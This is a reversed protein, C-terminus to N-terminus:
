IQKEAGSLDSSDSPVVSSESPETSSESPAFDEEIREPRFVEMEDFSLFEVGIGAEPMTLSKPLRNEKGILLDYGGAESTGSFCWGEATDTGSTDQSSISDFVDALSQGIGGEPLADPEIVIGKYSVTIKEEDASNSSGLGDVAFQLGELHEPATVEVLCCDESRTVKANMELPESAEGETDPLSIRILTEASFSGSFLAGIDQPEPPAQKNGLGCGSLGFVWVAGFIVIVARRMRATWSIM